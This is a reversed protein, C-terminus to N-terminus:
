LRSKTSMIGKILLRTERSMLALWVILLKEKTRILKKKLQDAILWTKQINLSM